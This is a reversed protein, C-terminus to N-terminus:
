KKDGSFDVSIVFNEDFNTINTVKIKLVLKNDKVSASTLEVDANITEGALSMSTKKDALKIVGDSGSVTTEIKIDGVPMGGFSFNSLSLDITEASKKTIVIDQKVPEEVLDVYLDGNYTGAIQAAYDVAPDEKEDDGCATFGLGLSLVFAVLLFLKKNM